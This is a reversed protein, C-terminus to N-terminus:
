QPRANIATAVDYVLLEREGWSVGLGALLLLFLMAIFTWDHAMVVPIAGMCAFGISFGLVLPHLTFHCRVATGGDFGELKGFLYPAFSNRVRVVTPQYRWAVRFYNKKASGSLSSRENQIMATLRSICEAPTLPSVLTFQGFALKRKPILELMNFRAGCAALRRNDRCNSQHFRTTANAEAV